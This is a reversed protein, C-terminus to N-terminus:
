AAYLGYQAFDSTVVKKLSLPTFCNLLLDQDTSASHRAFLSLPTKNSSAFELPIEGSSNAM